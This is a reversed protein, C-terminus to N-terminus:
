SAKARPHASQYVALLQETEVATYRQTTSLSAHGLLEQIARLDGGASLLHTAFSHRLAHPTATEPLQLQRRLERMRRQAVGADLRKGKAGVFLPADPGGAYPLADVYASLAAAVAPLVPVRREKKGKGLVTLADGLPVTRRNLSLAEDIRLGCGYLLTFLAADRKGLWDDTPHDDANALLAEADLQTLPKPISKPLKPARMTGLAANHLTGNKDLFRFLGKVSSLARARSTAAAGDRALAASWSRFEALTANGLDALAVNRGHHEALFRLFRDVDGTYSDLTHASLRRESQMWRRWADRAEILDGAYAPTWEPTKRAKPM